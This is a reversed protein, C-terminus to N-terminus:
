RSESHVKMKSSHMADAVVAALDEHVYSASAAISDFPIAMNEGIGEGMSALLLAASRARELRNYSEESVWYGLPMPPIRLSADPGPDASPVEMARLDDLQLALCRELQAQSQSPVFLSLRTRVRESLAMLEACDRELPLLLRSRLEAELADEQLADNLEICADTLRKSAKRHLQDFSSALHLVRATREADLGADLMQTRPQRESLGPSRILEAIDLNM